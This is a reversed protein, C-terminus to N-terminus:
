KNNTDYQLFKAELNEQIPAPLCNFYGNYSTTSCRVRDTFNRLCIFCFINSCRTCTMANCGSEHDIFTFCKPCARYKPSRLSGFNKMPPNLMHDLNNDGCKVNGCNQLSGHNKWVRSCKWCFQSLVDNKSCIRCNILNQNGNERQCYINCSPCKQMDKNKCNNNSLAQTLTRYVEADILGCRILYDLDIKESCMACSIEHKILKMQHWAHKIICESCINHGCKMTVANKELCVCCEEKPKPQSTIDTIDSDMLELRRTSYPQNHQVRLRQTLQLHLNQEQGVLSNPKPFRQEQQVLSNPISSRQEQQVLSRRISYRQEQLALSNPISSRQEQQVLSRRISSRQEQLALSNPISSRQEQLALSNPISSRQEKEVLSRRIPLRGTQQIPEAVASTTSNTSDPQMPQVRLRQTLELLLSKQEQEVLSSQISLRQEKGVLSSPISLRQEKGVLSSPISLRQEKEVLSSPISLRQEKGVLSSPISLRQEKGVLSSLISLRQEKEVLSRRMLLPGTQQIPRQVIQETDGKQSITINEKERHKFKSSSVGSM